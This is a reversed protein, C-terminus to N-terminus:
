ISNDSNDNGATEKKVSHKVPQISSELDKSRELLVNAKLIRTAERKDRPLPKGDIRSIVEYDVELQASAIEDAVVDNAYPGLIVGKLRQEGSLNTVLVKAVVYSAM